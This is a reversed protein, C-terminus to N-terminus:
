RRYFTVRDKNGKGALYVVVQNSRLVCRISLQSFEVRWAETSCALNLGVSGRAGRRHPHSSPISM